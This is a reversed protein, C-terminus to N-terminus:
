NLAAQLAKQKDLLDTALSRGGDETCHHNEIEAAASSKQMAIAIAAWELPGAGAKEALQKVQAIFYALEKDPGGCYPVSAAITGAASGYDELAQKLTEDAAGAPASFAAIALAASLMLGLGKM